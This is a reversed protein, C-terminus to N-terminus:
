RKARMFRYKSSGREDQIEDLRSFGCKRLVSLSRANKSDVEAFVSEECREAVIGELFMRLASTAIGEGWCKPDIVYAVEKKTEDSPLPGVSMWGVPAAGRMVKYTLRVYEDQTYNSILWSIVARMEDISEFRDPLFEQVGNESMLQFLWAADSEDLEAISIDDRANM